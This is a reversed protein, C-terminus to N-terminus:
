TDLTRDNIDIQRKDIISSSECEPHLDHLRIHYAKDLSMRNLADQHYQTKYDDMTIDYKKKQNKIMVINSRM